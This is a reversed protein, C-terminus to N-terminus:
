KLSDEEALYFNFKLRTFMVPIIVNQICILASTMSITQEYLLVSKKKRWFKRYVTTKEGFHLCSKNSSKDCSKLNSHWTMSGPLLIHLLIVHCCFYIQMNLLVYVLAVIIMIIMTIIIKLINLTYCFFMYCSSTWPGLVSWIWIWIWIWFQIEM